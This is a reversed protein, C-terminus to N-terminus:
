NGSSAGYKKMYKDIESKTMGLSNLIQNTETDSLGSDVVNLFMQERKAADKTIKNGTKTQNGFEDTTYVPDTYLNQMSQLVQNATLGGSSGTSKPNAMEYDLQAWARASDDQSLGIQAERYAQQNQEALSQLAYNLGFQQVDRDFVAKWQQDSIADRAQQYAFQELAQTQNFQQAQGAMNLPTEPNSAQRYLGTWDSQPAVLRGSANGVALAADMNAQKGALDQAQGALTRIGFNGRNGAAQDYTINAGVLNPNGGLMQIQQRAMEAAQNAAKREEPTQAASYSQKAQLVTNYLNMLEPDQYTGTQQAISLPRTVDQQYETNYLNGLNGIRDQYQQYAMPLYQQIMTDKIDMAAQNGLQNALTESFSSKGQGTARLRANTNAQTNELNRMAQQMYAQFAQDNDPNYEFQTNVANSLNGLTKELRSQPPTPVSFTKAMNTATQTIKPNNSGPTTNGTKFNNAAKTVATSISPSFSNWAKNFGAQTDFSTGNVVKSPQMFDQGKVTVFGSNKNFGIDNNNVGKNVLSQRINSGYGNPTAM